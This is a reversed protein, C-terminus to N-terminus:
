GQKATSPAQQPSQGPHHKAINQKAKSHKPGTGIRIGIRIRIRIRIRMRIRIRIRIGIRMGIRIWIRM